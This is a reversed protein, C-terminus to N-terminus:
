HNSPTPIYRIGGSNRIITALRWGGTKGTTKQECLVFPSIPMIFIKRFPTTKRTKDTIGQLTKPAIHWDAVQEAGVGVIV